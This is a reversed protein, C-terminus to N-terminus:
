SDYWLQSDVLKDAKCTLVVTIDTDNGRGVINGPNNRDADKAHFMARIDGELHNDYLEHVEEFRM